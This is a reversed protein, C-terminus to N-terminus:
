QNDNVRVIKYPLTNNELANSMENTRTISTNCTHRGEVFM